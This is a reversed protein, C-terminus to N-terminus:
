LRRGGQRARRHRGRGPHQQLPLGPQHDGAHEDPGGVIPRCTSTPAEPSAPNTHSHSGVIADIGTVQAALNTDVNEDVEVSKPNTTFGIHTLAIVVDNNPRCRRPRVASGTTIPNSFTLGLINSPLEYNPVRHNTIGLVAVKIGDLRRRSTVAQCGAVLGQRASAMRALTRQRQRGPAPLQGAQLHRQLRRQRLQVRPQRADHRRLEHLEDVAMMPNTQLAPQCRRATQPSVRLLVVQLLVDDRRGPDPRRWEAAPHPDPQAATGAQDAHGAPYLWCISGKALNGHSDNHHLITIPVISGGPMQAMASSAATSRAMATRAWTPPLRPAM